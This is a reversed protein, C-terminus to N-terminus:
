EDGGQAAAARALLERVISRRLRGEQKAEAEIARKIAMPLAAIRRFALTRSIRFERAAHNVQMGEVVKRYLLRDRDRALESILRRKSPREKRGVEALEGGEYGRVLRM